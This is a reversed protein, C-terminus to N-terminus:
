SVCIYSRHTLFLPLFNHITENRVKVTNSSLTIDDFYFLNTVKVLTAMMTSKGSGAAGVVCVVANGDVTVDNGSDDQSRIM